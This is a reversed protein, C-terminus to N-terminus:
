LIRLKRDIQCRRRANRAWCCRYTKRLDIGEPPLDPDRHICFKVYGDHGCDRCTGGRKGHKLYTTADIQMTMNDHPYAHIDYHPYAYIDYRHTM